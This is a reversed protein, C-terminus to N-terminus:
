SLHSCILKTRLLLIEELGLKVRESPNQELKSQRFNNWQPNSFHVLERPLSSLDDCLMSRILDIVTQGNNSLKELTLVDGTLLRAENLNKSVACSESLAILAHNRRTGRPAKRWSDEFADGGYVVYRRSVAFRLDLASKLLFSYSSALSAVSHSQSSDIERKLIADPTLFMATQGTYLMEWQSNWKGADHLADQAKPLDVVVTATSM